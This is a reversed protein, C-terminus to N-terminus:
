WAPRLHPSFQLHSSHLFIGELDSPGSSPLPALLFVALFSLIITSIHCRQNLYNVIHLGEEKLGRLLIVVTM